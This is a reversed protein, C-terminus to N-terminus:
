LDEPIEGKQNADETEKKVCDAPHYTCQEAKTMCRFYNGDWLKRCIEQSACGSLVLILLYKM